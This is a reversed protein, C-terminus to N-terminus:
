GPVPLLDAQSLTEPLGELSRADEVRYRGVATRRLEILVASHGTIAEGIDRVLSRIYTGKSCEVEITVNPWDYSILTLARITIPREALRPLPEHTAPEAEVGDQRQGKTGEHRSRDHKRATRYSRKGDVWMASYVPPSQMIEGRFKVLAAEVEALTPRRLLPNITAETELDDSPTTRLLDFTAVYTKPGDMLENCMRTAARGILIILLGSALPDLTGAHGIKLSKVDYGAARLRKKVVRCATVSSVARRAPKDILLIGVPPPPPPVGAFGAHKRPTETM